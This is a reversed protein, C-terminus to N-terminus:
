TIIIFFMLLHAETNKKKNTMNQKTITIEIRCFLLLLLMENCYQEFIVPLECREGGRELEGERKAIERERVKIQKNKIASKYFFIM